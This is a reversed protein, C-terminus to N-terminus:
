FYVDVYDTLNDCFEMQQLRWYKRKGSIRFDFDGTRECNRGKDPADVILITGRFRFRDASIAVVDGKIKLTGEYNSQTGELSVVDNVDTATLHGRDAHWLWQVTIGSNNMLREYAAQDQVITKGVPALTPRPAYPNMPGKTVPTAYPDGASAPASPATPPAGHASAPAASPQATDAARPHASQTVASAGGHASQTIGQACAPATAALAMAAAVAAVAAAVPARKVSVVAISPDRDLDKHM